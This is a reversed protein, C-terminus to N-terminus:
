QLCLEGNFYSLYFLHGDITLEIADSVFVAAGIGSRIMATEDERLERGIKSAAFGFMSHIGLPMDEDDDDRTLEPDFPIYCRIGRVYGFGSREIEIYGGEVPAIEIIGVGTDITTYEGLVIGELSEKAILIEEHPETVNVSDNDTGDPNEQEVGDQRDPSGQQWSPPRNQEVPTVSAVSQPSAVGIGHLDIDPLDSSCGLLLIPLLIACAFFIIKRM